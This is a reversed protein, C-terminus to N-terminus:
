FDANTDWECRGQSEQNSTSAVPPFCNYTPFAQNKNPSQPPWVIFMYYDAALSWQDGNREMPPPFPSTHSFMYMIIIMM